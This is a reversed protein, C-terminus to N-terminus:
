QQERDGMRGAAEATHAKAMGGGQLHKKHATTPLPWIKGASTESYLELFIILKKAM